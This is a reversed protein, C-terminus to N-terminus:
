EVICMLLRPLTTALSGDANVLVGEGGCEIREVADFACEANEALIGARFYMRPKMCKAISGVHSRCILEQERITTSVHLWLALGISFSFM